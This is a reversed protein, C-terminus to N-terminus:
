EPIRWVHISDSSSSIAAVWRGDPSVALEAIETIAGKLTNRLTLNKGDWIQVVGDKGGTVLRSGNPLFTAATVEGHHGQVERSLRDNFTSKLRLWGGTDGSVATKADPSLALASVPHDHHGLSRIERNGLRDWFTVRNNRAFSALVWRADQSYHTLHASCPPDYGTRLWTLIRTGIWPPDCPALSVTSSGATLNTIWLDKRSVSYGRLGDFSFQISQFGGPFQGLMEGTLADWLHLGEKHGSEGTLLRLGDPSIALSRITQPMPGVFVKPSTDAQRQILIKGAHPDTTLGFSRVISGSPFDWAL